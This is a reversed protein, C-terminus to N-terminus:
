IKMIYLTWPNFSFFDEFINAPLNCKKPPWINVMHFFYTFFFCKETQFHFLCYIKSFAMSFPNIKIM